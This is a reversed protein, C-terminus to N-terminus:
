WHRLDISWRDIVEGNDVIWLQEHRAITPDVHAPRVHMREGIHFTRKSSSFTTHEDSCFWINCDDITPDGHDMGLAKLGVDIVFRSSSTLRGIAGGMGRSGHSHNRARLIEQATGFNEM